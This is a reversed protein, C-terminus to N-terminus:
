NPTGLQMIPRDQTSASAAQVPVTEAAEARSTAVGSKLKEFYAVNSRAKDPPLSQETLQRAEDVKGKLGLILALNQRTQADGGKGAAQRLIREAEEHKGDLAYSLALNNLISPQDPAHALAKAFQVQADQQRGNASLAAGLASQMRWDPKSANQAKKLLTEAKALEGLELAMLGREGLLALDKDANPTRDLRALAEAKKGAGRLARAERIASAVEPKVDLDPGAPAAPRSPSISATEVPAGASAAPDTLALPGLSAADQACGAMVVCFGALAVRVCTAARQAAMLRLLM